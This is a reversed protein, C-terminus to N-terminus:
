KKGKRQLQYNIFEDFQKKLKNISPGTLYTRLSKEDSPIKQIILNENLHSHALEDSPNRFNDWLIYYLNDALTLSKLKEEKIEKATYGVAGVIGCKLYSHEFYIVWDGVSYKSKFGKFPKNMKSSNILTKCDKNFIEFTGLKNTDITSSNLRIYIIKEFEEIDFSDKPQLQKKLYTLAKERTSFYKKDCNWDYSVENLELPFSPPGFFNPRIKDALAFIQITFVLNM